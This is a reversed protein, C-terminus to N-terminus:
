KLNEQKNKALFEDAIELNRDSDDKGKERLKEQLLTMIKRRQKQDLKAVEPTEMGDVVGAMFVDYNMEVNQRKLNEGLDAGLAYSTSDTFNTLTIQKIQKVSKDLNGGVYTKEYDKDGNERWYIWLGDKKDDKYFGKSEKKGNEYWYTGLGELYGSNYTVEQKKQGNDYWLTYLGDLTGNKYYGEAEKQGTVYYFTWKGVRGNKPFDGYHQIDFGDGNKYSGEGWKNGNYHYFIWLGDM